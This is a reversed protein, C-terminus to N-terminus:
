PRRPHRSDKERGPLLEQAILYQGLWYTILILLQNGPFSEGYQGQFIVMDSFWLLFAGAAPGWSRGPTQSYIFAGLVLLILLSSYLLILPLIEAPISLALYHYGKATIIGAGLFFFAKRQVGERLNGEKWFFFTYFSYALFFAGGGFPIMMGEAMFWDGAAALFMGLVILGKRGRRNSLSSFFVFLAMSGMVSVKLLHHPLIHPVTLAAAALSGVLLFLLIKNMM